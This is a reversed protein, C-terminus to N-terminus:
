MCCFLYGLSSLKFGFIGWLTEGKLDSSYFYLMVGITISLVLMTWGSFYGLFVSFIALISYFIRGNITSIYRAIIRKEPNNIKDEEIDFIDNIVNGAAATAITALIVFIASIVHINEFNYSAAHAMFLVQTVIIICLNLPRTLLLYYKFKTFM